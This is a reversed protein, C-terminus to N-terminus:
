CTDGYRRKHEWRLRDQEKNREEIRQKEPKEKFRKRERERMEEESLPKM